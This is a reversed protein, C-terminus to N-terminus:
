LNRLFHQSKLTAIAGAGISAPYGIGSRHVDPRAAGTGRAASGDLTLLVLGLGLSLLAGLSYVLDHRTM